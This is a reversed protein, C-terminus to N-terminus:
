VSIPVLQVVKRGCILCFIHIKVFISIKWDIGQYIVVTNYIDGYKSSQLREIVMELCSWYEQLFM